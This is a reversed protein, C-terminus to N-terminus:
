RDLRFLEQIDKAWYSDMWEQFDRERTQDALLFPPLGGRYLRHELRKVHLSELDRSRAPTLWLEGQTAMGARTM